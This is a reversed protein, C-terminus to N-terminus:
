DSNGSMQCYEAFASYTEKDQVLGISDFPAGLSSLSFNPGATTINLAKTIKLNFPKVGEFYHKLLEGVSIIESIPL